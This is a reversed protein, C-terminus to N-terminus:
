ITATRCSESYRHFAREPPQQGFRQPRTERELSQGDFSVGQVGIFNRGQSDYPMNPMPVFSLFKQATPDLMNKPIVHGVQDPPCGACFLPYVTTTTARNLREPRQLRCGRLRVAPLAASQRAGPSVWSNRFDGNREATTPCMRGSRRKTVGGSRSMAPSSSHRERATTFRRSDGGPRGSTVGMENRRM